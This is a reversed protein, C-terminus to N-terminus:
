SGLNIIRWVDNTVIIWVDTLRVNRLNNVCLCIVRSSDEILALVVLSICM